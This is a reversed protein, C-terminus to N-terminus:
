RVGLLTLPDIRQAEEFAKLRWSCEPCTFCPKERSSICTRTMGLPLNHKFAWDVLEKKKTKGFINEIFPAYIEWSWDGTDQCILLNLLRFAEIRSHNFPDDPVAATLITRAKIGKNHELHKCYYVGLGIIFADRLPYGLTGLVEAPYNTKLEVPPIPYEIKTCEIIKGPYKNTFYEIFYDYAQEEYKEARSSRRVFIPVIRCNCEEILRAILITSDMGGSYMVCVTKNNPPEVAHERKKVFIENLQTLMNKIEKVNM